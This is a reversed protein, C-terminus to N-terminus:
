LEAHIGLCDAVLALFPFACFVTSIARTAPIPLAAAVELEDGAMLTSYRLVPVGARLQIYWLLTHMVEPM